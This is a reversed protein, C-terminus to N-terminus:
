GPGFHPRGHTAVEGVALDLPFESGDKRRGKVVRGVGIVRREGAKLYHALYGDHADRDPEPMLQSVNKGVIETAPYGFVAEASPSFSEVTGQADIVVIAEPATDLIAQLRAERARLDAEARRRETIDRAIKSAGVIRGAEDRVPSVTLSIEVLTGDRRRRVTDFHDVREGRRIRELIAPMEGERGPAALRAIPQGIMEAAAYGFLREAARNWSTVVGDLNKSAIADDSSEVIATLLSSALDRPSSSRGIVTKGGGPGAPTSGPTPRQWRPHPGRPLFSAAGFLYGLGAQMTRPRGSAAAIRVGTFEDQLQIITEM